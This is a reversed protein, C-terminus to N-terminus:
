AAISSLPIYQHFQQLLSNQALTLDAGAIHQFHIAKQIMLQIHLQQVGDAGLEVPNEPIGAHVLNDGDLCGADGDGTHRGPMKMNRHHKGFPLSCFCQRLHRYM